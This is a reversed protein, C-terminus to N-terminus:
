NYHSQIERLSKDKAKCNGCVWAVQGQCHGTAFTVKHLDFSKAISPVKEMTEVLWKAAVENNTPASAIDDVSMTTPFQSPIITAVGGLISGVNLNPVQSALGATFQAGVKLLISLIWLGKDVLPQVKQFTESGLMVEFGEQDKVVHIGDIHECMLHLQACELGPVFSTVLTKCSQMMNKKQVFYALRPINRQQLQVNFEMLSDVKKCLEKQLQKQFNEIKTFSEHFTKIIRAGMAEQNEIIREVGYEHKSCIYRTQEQLNELLCQFDRGMSPDIKMQFTARLSRVQEEQPNLTESSEQVDTKLVSSVMTLMNLRSEMLAVIAKEGLLEVFLDHATPLVDHQKVIGPVSPWTHRYSLNCNSMLFEEELAKLAV